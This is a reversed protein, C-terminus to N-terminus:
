PNSAVLTFVTIEPRVNFRVQLLHGLGRNIYLRRGDVLPVEGSVYRRNRVPILPPPLFPPKCQGGHTHGALIWGRFPGWGPKDAGDPNHCLAIAAQRADIGGFARTPEFVGGWLDDLGVFTLGSFTVSKNRLVRVGATTLEQAVQAAVEPMSWRFGYDHNGLVALSGLRPKPLHMLVQRLQSLQDPGRYTILDGTIALIDPKLEAVTQLCSILYRDDVQPGVHWDSIQILRSGVLPPPLAALPLPRQVTEVWHPEVGFTYGVTGVAGAAVLGASCRLFRRRNM